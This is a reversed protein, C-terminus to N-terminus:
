NVAPLEVMPWRSKVTVSLNEQQGAVLRQCGAYAIMAGNDTCFAASPYFVQWRKRMALDQLQARLRLNASVGGAMVLRKLGTQKLARECKKVLSDVIAAEFSAAIDAKKQPYDETQNNANLVATKLGSFSFDLGARDLMPRPFNFAESNGQLALRAVNPGGPYDLHLMKAVKDFAEGAADDVSEGLLEYQGIGEVKLLQTHGGSVLLAIFPFEPKNEELLPALLHGEMHHVGIAPVRWAYALSRGTLAGVMLAGALGPGSTYAIGDIDTAQSNAAALVEKILPILKRVHDRSALEPVVGGYDAHLQIQSYLRHALLGQESDYVAVGTEDCSTEIGLVRM